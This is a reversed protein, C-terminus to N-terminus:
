RGLQLMKKNMQERLYKRLSQILIQTSYNTSLRAQIDIGRKGMFSSYYPQRKVLLNMLGGHNGAQESTELLHMVDSALSDNNNVEEDFTNVENDLHHIVDGHTHIVDHSSPIVAATPLVPGTSPQTGHHKESPLIDVLLSRGDAHTRRYERIKQNGSEITRPPSLLMAKLRSETEREPSSIRKLLEYAEFVPIVENGSDSLTTKACACSALLCTLTMLAFSPMMTLYNAPSRRSKLHINTRLSFSSSIM